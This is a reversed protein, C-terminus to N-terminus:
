VVSKRDRHIASDPAITYETGSTSLLDIQQQRPHNNKPWPLWCRIIEGDPVADPHVTITYTIKMTRPIVPNWRDDTTNVVEKTHNLRFIMEPDGAIEALREDKQEYFKKILILNSVGRNFYMKEGNILRWELWGKKEWEAKKEKSFSGTKYEIQTIVQKETVNFDLGIREAIQALSDAKQYIQDNDACFKKASDALIIAASLNGSELHGEIDQLMQNCDPNHSCATVVSLFIIFHKLSLNKM